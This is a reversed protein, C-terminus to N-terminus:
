PMVNAVRAMAAMTYASSCDSTAGANGAMWASRFADAVPAM